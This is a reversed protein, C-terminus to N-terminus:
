KNILDMLFQQVRPDRSQGLWFIAKKRMEPDPGHCSFCRSALIPQIDQNFDLHQVAGASKERARCGTTWAM